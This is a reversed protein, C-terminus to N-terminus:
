AWSMWTTLPRIDQHDCIAIDESGVVILNQIGLGYAALMDGQLAM